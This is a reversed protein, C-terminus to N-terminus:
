PDEGDGALGAGVFVQGHIVAIQELAGEPPEGHLLPGDEDEVVVEPERDRIAARVPMGMPVTFDLQMVGRSREPGADFSVGSSRSGWSRSAHARMSVRVAQDVVEQHFPLGLQGVLDEVGHAGGDFVLVLPDDDARPPQSMMFLNAAKPRPVAATTATTTMPVRYKPARTGPPTPAGGEAVGVGTVAEWMRSPPGGCIVTSIGAPQVPAM